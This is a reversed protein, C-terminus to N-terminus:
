RAIYNTNIARYIAIFIQPKYIARWLWRLYHMFLVLVLFLLSSPSSHWSLPLFARSVGKYLVLGRAWARSREYVGSVGLFWNGGIWHVTPFSMDLCDTRRGLLSSTWKIWKAVHRFNRKCNWILARWRPLIYGIAKSSCFGRSITWGRGTQPIFEACRQVQNM